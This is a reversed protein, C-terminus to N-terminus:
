EGRDSVPLSVSQYSVLVIVDSGPASECNRILQKSNYIRYRESIFGPDAFFIRRLLPLRAQM